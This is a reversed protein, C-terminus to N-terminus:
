ARQERLTRTEELDIELTKPNIVVKYIERATELSVFKNIVDWRVKEPDREAPNGVGAGGGSIKLLTDGPQLQYIRRGRIKTQEGDRIMYGRSTPNPEGGLAGPARVVEGDMGGTNMGAETGENTAEWHVGSAGRWKGAGSTDTAFEWRVFRWPFRMEMEEVNGRRVEGLAGISCAGEYGDFGRVAGAGGDTDSTTVTYKEDTRPDLGYIYHSYHLGWSAIAREPIAKSMAMVVAQIIQHGMSVPSAGVPAPYQSNLVSGPPAYITFPRLSGENHYEALSPDLFM